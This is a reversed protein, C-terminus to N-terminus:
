PELLEDPKFHDSIISKVLDRSKCDSEWIYLVKYNNSKYWDLKVRDQAIHESQLHDLDKPSYIKPNGHYYDGQCELVVDGILFDPKYYHRNSAKTVKGTFITPHDQYVIGLQDLCNKVILEPTTHKNRVKTLGLRWAKNRVEKPTRGINSAIEEIPLKGYNDRLNALDKLSWRPSKKPSLSLKLAKAHISLDTRGLCKAIRKCDSKNKYNAKLYEIDEASWWIDDPLKIAKTIKPRKIGLNRAKTRVSQESRNLIECIINIDQDSVFMEILKDELDKTWANTYQNQNM